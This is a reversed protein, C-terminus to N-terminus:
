PKMQVGRIGGHPQHCGTCSNQSCENMKRVIQYRKLDSPTWLSNQSGIPYINNYGYISLSSLHVDIKSTMHKMICIHQLSFLVCLSFLTTYWKQSIELALDTFIFLILHCQTINLKYLLKVSNFLQAFLHCYNKFLDQMSQEKEKANFKITKLVLCM